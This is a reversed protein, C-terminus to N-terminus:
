TSGLPVLNDRFHWIWKSSARDAQFNLHCFSLSEQCQSDSGMERTLGPHFSTLSGSTCRLRIMRCTQPFLLARSRCGLATSVSLSLTCSPLYTNLHKRILPHQFPFSIAEAIQGLRGRVNLSVIEYILQFISRYAGVVQQWLFLCATWSHHDPSVGRAIM